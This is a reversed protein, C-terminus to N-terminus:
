LADIFLTLILFFYGLAIGIVPAAGLVEIATM